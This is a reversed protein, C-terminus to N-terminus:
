RIRSKLKKKDVLEDLVYLLLCGDLLYFFTYIYTSVMSNQTPINKKFHSCSILFFYLTRTQHSFQFSEKDFGVKTQITYYHSTNYSNRSYTISINYLFPNFQTSWPRCRPDNQQPSKTDLRLVVSLLRDGNSRSGLECCLLLSEVGLHQILEM